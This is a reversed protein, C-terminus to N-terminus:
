LKSMEQKFRISDCYGKLCVNHIYDLIRDKSFVANNPQGKLVPMMTKLAWGWADREERIIRAQMKSSVPQLFTGVADIAEMMDAGFTYNPNAYTTAHGIEHFMSILTAPVQLDKGILIAREKYNATNTQYSNTVTRFVIHYGSPLLKHTDIITGNQANELVMLKLSRWFQRDGRHDLLNVISTSTTTSTVPEYSYKVRVAGETLSVNGSNEYKITGLPKELIAGPRMRHDDWGFDKGSPSELHTRLYNDAKSNEDNVM